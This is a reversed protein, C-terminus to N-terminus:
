ILQIYAAEEYVRDQGIYKNKEWYQLPNILCPCNVKLKSIQYHLNDM